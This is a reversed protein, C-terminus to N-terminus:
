FLSVRRILNMSVFFQQTHTGMLTTYSPFYRFENIKTQETYFYFKDIRILRFHKTNFQRPFSILWQKSYTRFIVSFIMLVFQLYLAGVLETMINLSYAIPPMRSKLKRFNKFSFVAIFHVLFLFTLTSKSMEDIENRNESSNKHIKNAHQRHVFSLANNLLIM